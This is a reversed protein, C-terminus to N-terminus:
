QMPDPILLGMVNEISNCYKNQTMVGKFGCGAM